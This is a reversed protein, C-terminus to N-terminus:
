ARFLRTETIEHQQAWEELAPASRASLDSVDIVAVSKEVMAHIEPALEVVWATADLPDMPALKLAASAVTQVDDYGVLCATSRDDLGAAAAVVGLVIARTATGPVSDAAEPWLRRLLRLHGRALQDANDRLAKAPTRARWALDIETLRVTDTASRRALVAATAETLTVTALRARLYDRISEISMGGALAPELGASQTNAGVPLRADALLLAFLETMDRPDVEGPM